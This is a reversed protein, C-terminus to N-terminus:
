GGGAGGGGGQAGLELTTQPCLPASSRTASPGSQTMAETMAAGPPTM